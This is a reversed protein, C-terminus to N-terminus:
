RAPRAPDGHLRHHRGAPTPPHRRGRRGPLAARDRSRPHRRDPHRDGPIRRQQAAPLAGAGPRRGEGRPHRIPRRRDRVAGVGRGRLWGPSPRRIRQGTASRRGLRGACPRRCGCLLVIELWAYSGTIAQPTARAGESVGDPPISGRRDCWLAIPLLPPRAAAAAGCRGPRAGRVPVAPPGAHGSLLPHWGAENAPCNMSLARYLSRAVGQPAPLGTLLRPAVGRSLSRRRHPGGIGGRSDHAQCAANRPWGGGGTCRLCWAPGRGGGPGALVHRSGDARARARVPSCGTAPM